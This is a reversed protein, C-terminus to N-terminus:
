MAPTVSPQDAQYPDFADVDASSPCSAPPCAFPPKVPPPRNVGKRELVAMLSPFPSPDFTNYFLYSALSFPVGTDDLPKLLEVAERYRAAWMLSRHTQYIMTDNNPWREVAQLGFDAGESPDIYNIRREPFIAGHCLRTSGDTELTGPRGRNDRPAVANEGGSLVGQPDNVKLDPVRVLTNPIEEALGDAFWGQDRAQSLDTFPPGVLGSPRLRHRRPLGQSM